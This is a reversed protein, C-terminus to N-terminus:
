KNKCYFFMADRIFEPLDNHYKRFNKAFREDAAYMEGLGTFIEVTCNYFKNIQDWHKQVIAQVEPSEIGKDINAVYAQAIADWEKAVRIFDEKSYHKTRQSSQKYAETDGWREHAEKKYADIQKQNFAEFLDKDKMKEGLGEVEESTRSFSPLHKENNLKEITKDVTHLLRNLRKRKELLLRKHDSMAIGIDFRASSIIEKIKELPFDLERFFLIQQLRMLEGDGYHRYGNKGIFAPELLGIEDYYHLTRM